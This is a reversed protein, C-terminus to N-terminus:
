RYSGKPGTVVSLRGPYGGGRTHLQLKAGNAEGDAKFLLELGPPDLARQSNSYTLTCASWRSRTAAHGGKVPVTPSGKVALTTVCQSGADNMHYPTQDANEMQPDTGKMLLIYMRLRALSLWFVEWREELVAKPVKYKGNPRQLSVRYERCRGAM